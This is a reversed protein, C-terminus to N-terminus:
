ASQNAAASALAELVNLGAHFTQDNMIFSNIANLHAFMERSQAASPAGVAVAAARSHAAAIQAVADNFAEDARFRLRMAEAAAGNAQIWQRWTDPDHINGLFWPGRVTLGSAMAVTIRTILTLENNDLPQHM